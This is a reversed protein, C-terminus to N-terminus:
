KIKLTLLVYITIHLENIENITMASDHRRVSPESQLHRHPLERLNDLVM